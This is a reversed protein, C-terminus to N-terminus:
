HRLASGGRHGTYEGGDISPVGNVLLYEVGESHRGSEEFTAV